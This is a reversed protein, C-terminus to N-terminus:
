AAKKTKVWAAASIYVSLVSHGLLLGLYGGIDAIFDNTTYIVFQEKEEHVGSEIAVTLEGFKFEHAQSTDLNKDM